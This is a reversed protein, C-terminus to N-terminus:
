ESQGRAQAACPPSSTTSSANMSTPGRSSDSAAIDPLPGDDHQPGEALEKSQGAHPKAEGHCGVSIAFPKTSFEAGPRDGPRRQFIANARKAVGCQCFPIRRRSTLLPRGARRKQATRSRPRRRCWGTEGNVIDVWGPRDKPAPAFRCRGARNRRIPGVLQAKAQGAAFRFPRPQFRRKRRPRQPCAANCSACPADRHDIDTRQCLHIFRDSRDLGVPQMESSAAPVSIVRGGHDGFGVVRARVHVVNRFRLFAHRQGAFLMNSGARNRASAPVPRPRHHDVAIGADAARGRGGIDNRGGKRRRTVLHFQRLCQAPERGRGRRFGAPRARRCVAPGHLAAHDFSDFGDPAARIRELAHGEGELDPASCPRLHDQLRQRGADVCRQDDVRARFAFVSDVEAVEEPEIFRGLPMRSLMPAAKEPDSWAKRAMATLTIAPNVCNVRIGHPGLENAMVRSMADLAGKSACYAAHNAFGTFASNSSVNVIAGPLKRAIRDKAYEQSIILPARTNVAILRDFAELSVDLFPELTTTGACNVLYDVPMAARAAQRTAEADALDVPFSRSGIEKDLAALDDASRSIAVVQAGRAALMRAVALGIGKGAGTVLRILIEPSFSAPEGASVETTLWQSDRNLRRQRASGALKAQLIVVALLFLGRIVSQWYASM